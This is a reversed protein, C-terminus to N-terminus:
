LGFGALDNIRHEWVWDIGEAAEYGLYGSDFYGCLFLAFQLGAGYRSRLQNVKTAEEKRRKNTNTFDGASKAEILLPLQNPQSNRPMVVVDIPINVQKDRGPQTIPVNLRFTFTGLQMGALTLGAGGPSYTYGREELWQRIVALQRTEQANRIIPNAAAGCMRDAVITAARNLTTQNLLSSDALWVFIDRDALQEIIDCIRALEGDILARKSRPPIRKKDEMTGVLSPRVKALGILRDRALPPATTMRLMFLIAPNEWLLAPTVDTMNSTKELAHRVSETTRVRQQRFTEPAFRMFWDNYQDVSTVTDAKWLHPKDLNVPMLPVKRHTEDKIVVHHSGNYWIGM